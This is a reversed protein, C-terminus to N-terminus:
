VSYSIQDMSLCVVDDQRFGLAQGYQPDIELTEVGKDTLSSTNFQSLSSASAMGTWGVYVENKANPATQELILHM